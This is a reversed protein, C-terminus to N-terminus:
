DRVINKIAQLKPVYHRTENPMRLDLYGEGLGAARNKAIARQVSGEGWNYAALALHWDGFMGYLNELYDLAARTSEIIDRREDHLSNQRLDYTRGTAPMFQWMGAAKASSVAQPNFASEVFPLLALETPMNRQELEEVIHFIYRRARETMRRIYDPRSSYYDEQQRVLATDIDPMAYGRRIREWIDRPAKLSTVAGTHLEQGGTHTPLTIGQAPNAASGRAQQQTGTTSCGSLWLGAALALALTHWKVLNM